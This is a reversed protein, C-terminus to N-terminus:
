KIGVLGFGKSESNFFLIHVRITHGEKPMDIPRSCRGRDYLKKRMMSGGFDNFCSGSLSTM